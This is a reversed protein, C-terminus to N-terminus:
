WPHKTAQHEAWAALDPRGLVERVYRIGWLPTGDPGLPPHGSPPPPPPPSPERTRVAKRDRALGTLHVAVSWLDPVPIHQLHLLVQTQDADPLTVVLKQLELALSGNNARGCNRLITRWAAQRAAHGEMTRRSQLPPHRREPASPFPPPQPTQNAAFAPM